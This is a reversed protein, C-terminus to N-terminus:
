GGLLLKINGGLIKEKNEFTVFFEQQVDKRFLIPGVYKGNVVKQKSDQTTKQITLVDEDNDTEKQKVTKGFCLQDLHNRWEQQIGTCFAAQSQCGGFDAPNVACHTHYREHQASQQSPIDNISVTQFEPEPRHHDNHM